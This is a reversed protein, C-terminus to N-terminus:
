PLLPPSIRFLVLTQSARSGRGGGFEAKNRRAHRECSGGPAATQEATEEAAQLLNNLEM